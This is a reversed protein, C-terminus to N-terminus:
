KRLSRATYARSPSRATNRRLSGTVLSPRRAQSSTSEDIGAKMTPPSKPSVMSSSNPVIGSM